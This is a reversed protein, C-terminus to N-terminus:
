FSIACVKRVQELSYMRKIIEHYYVPYKKLRDVKVVDKYISWEIGEILSYDINNKRLGVKNYLFNKLWIPMLKKLWTPYVSYKMPLEKVENVSQRATNMRSVFPFSGLEPDISSILALTLKRCKKADFAIDSIFHNFHWENYMSYFYLNAQAGSNYMADGYQGAFFQTFKVQQKETLKVGKKFGERESLFNMLYDLYEKKSVETMIPGVTLNKLLIEPRTDEMYSLDEDSYIDPLDICEGRAGSFEFDNDLKWRPNAYQRFFNNGYDFEGIHKAIQDKEIRIDTQTHLKKKLGDALIKAIESDPGFIPYNMYDFDIGSSHLNSAVLRSDLGGTADAYVKKSGIASKVEKMQQEFLSKVYPVAEELTEIRPVDPIHRNHWSKQGKEDITIYKHPDITTLDEVFTAEAGYGGALFGSLKVKDFKPHAMSAMVATMSTSFIYEDGEKAFFVRMFGSMDNFIYTKRGKKICFAWHGFVPNKELVEDLDDYVLKLADVGYAGKYFYTGVGIAFDTEGLTESGIYNVNKVLTKPATVLSYSDNSHDKINEHGRTKFVNIVRETNVHKTSYLFVGM